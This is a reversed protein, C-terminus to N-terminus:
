FVMHATNLCIQLNNEARQRELEVTQQKLAAYAAFFRGLAALGVPAVVGATVLGTLLYDKTIEGQLLLSMCSVILVALVVCVLSIVAWLYWRPRSEIREIVSITM